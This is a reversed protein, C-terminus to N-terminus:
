LMCCALKLKCSMSIGNMVAIPLLGVSVQLSFVRLM